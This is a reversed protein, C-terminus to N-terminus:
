DGEQIMCSLVQGWGQSKTCARLSACSLPVKDILESRGSPEDPTIRNNVENDNTNNCSMGINSHNHTTTKM